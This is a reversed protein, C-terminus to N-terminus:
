LWHHCLQRLRVQPLPRRVQLAQLVQPQPPPLMQRLLVQNWWMHLELGDTPIEAAFVQASGTPERTKFLM